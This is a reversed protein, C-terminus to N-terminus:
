EQEFVSRLDMRVITTLLRGYDIRGLISEVAESEGNELLVNEPTREGLEALPRRMWRLAREETSFVDVAHRWIDPAIIALTEVGAKM